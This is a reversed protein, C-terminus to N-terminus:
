VGPQLIRQEALFARLAAPTTFTHGHLGVQAAAKAFLDIDDIFVAEEPQVDLKALALHFFAPDPKAVGASTSTLVCDFLGSPLGLDNELLRTLEAATWTANSLVALKYNPALEHLLERIEPNVQIPEAFVNQAFAEVAAQDTIGRPALIAPWFEAATMQGSMWQRALESGFLYPWVEDTELGLQAALAARHGNSMQTDAAATIVQGFDFIIAKITM